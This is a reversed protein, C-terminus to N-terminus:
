WVYGSFLKANDPDLGFSADTYITVMRSISRTITIGKDISGKVYRLVQHALKLHTDSLNSNYSGLLSITFSLDLRSM